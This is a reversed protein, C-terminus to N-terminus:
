GWINFNPSGHVSYRTSLSPPDDLHTKEKNIETKRSVRPRPEASRLRRADANRWEAIISRDGALKQIQDIAHTSVTIKRGKRFTNAGSQPLRGDKTWRLRERATIGLAQQVLHPTLPRKAIADLIRDIDKITATLAAIQGVGCSLTLVDGNEVSQVQSGVRALRSRVSRSVESSRLRLGFHEAFSRRLSVVIPEEHRTIDLFRSHLFEDDRDTM